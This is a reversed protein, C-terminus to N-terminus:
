DVVAPQILEIETNVNNGSNYKGTNNLNQIMYRQNGFTQLM